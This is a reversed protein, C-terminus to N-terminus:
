FINYAEITLSRCPAEIFRKRKKKQWIQFRRRDCKFEEETVNSHFKPCVNSRDLPSLILRLLTWRLPCLWMHKGSWDRCKEQFSNNYAKITLSRCPAEIVRKRKKKQWMQIRRRDCKFEEEIVNLHSKPRVNSRLLPKFNTEFPDFLTSVIM